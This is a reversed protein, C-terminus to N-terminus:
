SPWVFAPLEAVLEEPTPIGRSGAGVDAMVQYCYTWTDRKIRLPITM